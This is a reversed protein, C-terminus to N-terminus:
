PSEPGGCIPDIHPLWPYGIRSPWPLIPSNGAYAVIRDHVPYMLEHARLRFGGLLSAHQDSRGGRLVGIGQEAHLPRRETTVIFRCKHLGQECIRRRNWSDVKHGFVGPLYRTVNEEGVGDHPGGVCVDRCGAKCGQCHVRRRLARADPLRQAALSDADGLLEADPEDENEAVDVVIWPETERRRLREPEHCGVRDVGLHGIRPHHEFSRRPKEAVHLPM